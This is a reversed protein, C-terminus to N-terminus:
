LLPVVEDVFRRMQGIQDFASFRVSLLDVGAEGFELLKDACEQPSGHATWMEVFERDFNTSYYEDLFRKSQECAADREGIHVNHYVCGEIESPKRGHAVAAARVAQWGFRYQDPTVMTTMWGDAHRGVRSVARDFVNSTAKFAQP